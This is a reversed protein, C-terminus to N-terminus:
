TALLAAIRPFVDDRHPYILRQCPIQAVLAAAFNLHQRLLRPNFCRAATTHRLIGAAAIMPSLPSLDPENEPGVKELLVVSGVRRRGAGRLSELREPALKPQPFEPLMEFSIADIAM